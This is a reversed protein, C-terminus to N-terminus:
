SDAGGPHQSGSDHSAPLPAPPIRSPDNHLPDNAAKSRGVVLPTKGSVLSGQCKDENVELLNIVRGRPKVELMHVPQPARPVLLYKSQYQLGISGSMTLPKPSLPKIQRGKINVYPHLLAIRGAGM